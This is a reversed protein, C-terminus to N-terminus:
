TQTTKSQLWRNRSRTAFGFAALAASAQERIRMVQDGDSTGVLTVLDSDCSRVLTQLTTIAAALDSQRDSLAM